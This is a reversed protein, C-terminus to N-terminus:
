MNASICVCQQALLKTPRYIKVVASFNMVCSCINYIHHQIPKICHTKPFLLGTNNVENYRKKDTHRYAHRDTTRDKHCIFTYILWESTTEIYIDTLWLIVLTDSIMVPQISVQLRAHLSRSIFQSPPTTPWDCSEAQSTTTRGVWGEMEGPDTVKTQSPLPLYTENCEHIYMYAHTAPLVTHDRSFAHWVQTGRHRPQGM